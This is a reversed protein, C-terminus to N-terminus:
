TTEGLVFEIPLVVEHGALTSPVRCLLDVATKAVEHWPARVSTLRYAPPILSTMGDFGAIALDGPVQIGCARLHQVTQYATQDNWCVVATPRGAPPLTLFDRELTRMPESPVSIVSMDHQAAIELFAQQRRIASTLPYPCQAYYIRRHGKQALHEALLRSGAADDVTVSPLGPVPNAVAIVRLRSAALRPLLPDDSAVHLVLGDVKGNLLHTFVEDTLRGEFTGHMLFDHRNQQCGQQLGSIIESLFLDRMDIFDSMYFGITQTRRTRLSRALANPQYHVEEAAQLIRQRTADSVRTNGKGGSLVISATVKNVGAKRAVDVLTPAADQDSEPSM